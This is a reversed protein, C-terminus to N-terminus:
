LGLSKLAAFPLVRGGPDLAKQLPVADADPLGLFAVALPQLAPHQFAAGEAGALVRRRREGDVFVALDAEPALVVSAGFRPFAPRVKAAVKLRVILLRIALLVAIFRFGAS